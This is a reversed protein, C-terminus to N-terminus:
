KGCSGLPQLTSPWTWLHLPSLLHVGEVRWAARSVECLLPLLRLVPISAPATGYKRNESHLVAECATHCSVSKRGPGAADLFPRVGHKRRGGRQREGTEEIDPQQARNARPLPHASWFLLHYGWSGARSATFLARWM